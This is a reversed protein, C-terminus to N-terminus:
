YLWGFKTDLWKRFGIFEKRIAIVTAIASGVVVFLVQEYVKFYLGILLIAFMMWFFLKEAFQYFSFEINKEYWESLVVIKTYAILLISTTVMSMIFNVGTIYHNASLVELHHLGDNLDFIMREFNAIM